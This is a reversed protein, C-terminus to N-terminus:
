SFKSVITSAFRPFATFTTSVLRMPLSTWVEPRPKRLSRVIANAVKESPQMLWSPSQSSFDDKEKGSRLASVDFFETHTGVPHVTSVHVSHQKLEM